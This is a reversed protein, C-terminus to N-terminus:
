RLKLDLSSSSTALPKGILLVLRSAPPPSSFRPSVPDMGHVIPSKFYIDFISLMYVSHLVVGLAVLGVERWRRRVSSSRVDVGSM